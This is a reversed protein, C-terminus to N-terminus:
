REVLYLGERVGWNTAEAPVILLGSNTSSLESTPPRITLRGNEAPATTSFPSAM